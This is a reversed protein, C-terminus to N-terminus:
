HLAKGSNGNEPFAAQLARVTAAHTQEIRDFWDAEMPLVGTAILPYYRKVLRHLAQAGVDGSMGLLSHKAQHM